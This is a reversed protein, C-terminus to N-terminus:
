RQIKFLKHHEIRGDSYEVRIIYQGDPQRNLDFEPNQSSSTYLQKGELSLVTSKRIHLDGTNKLLLTFAGNSPNPFLTLKYKEQLKSIGVTGVISVHGFASDITVGGSVSHWIVVINSGLKFDTPTYNIILSKLLSDGPNLVTTLTDSAFQNLGNGTDVAMHINITGNFAISGKNKLFVDVTDASFFLNASDLSFITLSGTSVGLTDQAFTKFSGISCIILAIIIIRKM